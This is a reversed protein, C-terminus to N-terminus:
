YDEFGDDVLCVYYRERIGVIIVNHKCVELHLQFDPAIGLADTNTNVFCPAPPGVSMVCRLRSSSSILWLYNISSRHSALSLYVLNKKKKKKKRSKGMLPRSLPNEM